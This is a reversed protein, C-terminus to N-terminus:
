GVCENRADLFRASTQNQQENSKTTIKLSGCSIINLAGSGVTLRVGELHINKSERAGLV